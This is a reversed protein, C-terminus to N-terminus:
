SSFLPTVPPRLRSYSPCSSSSPMESPDCSVSDSSSSSSSSSSSMLVAFFGLLAAPEFASAVKSSSGRRLRGARGFVITELENLVLHALHLDVLQLATKDAVESAHMGEKRPGVGVATDLVDTNVEKNPGAMFVLTEGLDGLTSVEQVEALLNRFAEQLHRTLEEVVRIELSSGLVIVRREDLIIAVFFMAGAMLYFLMRPYRVCSNVLLMIVLIYSLVSGIVTAARGTKWAADWDLDLDDLDDDISQCEDDEDEYTWFGFYATEYGFEEHKFTKCSFAAYNFLAYALIALTLPIAFLGNYPCCVSCLFVFYPNSCLKAIIFRQFFVDLWLVRFPRKGLLTKSPSM